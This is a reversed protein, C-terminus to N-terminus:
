AEADTAARLYPTAAKIAPRCAAVADGIVREPATGRVWVAVVTRAAWWPDDSVRQTLIPMASSTCAKVQAIVEYPPNAQALKDSIHTEFPGLILFQVAYFIISNLM